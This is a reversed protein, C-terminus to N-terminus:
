HCANLERLLLKARHTKTKLKVRRTRRRLHGGVGVFRHQLVGEILYPYGVMQGVLVDEHDQGRDESAGIGTDARRDHVRETAGRDVKSRAECRERMQRSVSTNRDTDAGARWRRVHDALAITGGHYALHNQEQALHERPAPNSQALERGPRIREVRRRRRLM